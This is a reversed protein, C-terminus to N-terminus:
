NIIIALRVTLSAGVILPVLGCYKISFITRDRIYSQRYQFSSQKASVPLFNKKEKKKKKKTIRVIRM